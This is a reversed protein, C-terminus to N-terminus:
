FGGSVLGRVKARYNEGVAALAEYGDGRLLLKDRDMGAIAAKNVLENRSIRVFHGVGFLDELQEFSYNKLLTRQGSNLIVLKDRSDTEGVTIRLIEGASLQMKGRATNVFLKKPRASKLATRVREIAQELRARDVPKRVYDIVSLDYADAAYNNHASVIVVPLDSLAAAVELGTMGPMIVDCLCFDLSLTASEEVFRAPDNYSKVVEVSGIDHLMEKLYSIALLEDDIIACRLTRM